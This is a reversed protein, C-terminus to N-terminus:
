EGLPRGQVESRTFAPACRDGAFLPATRMRPPRPAPRARSDGAPERAEGGASRMWGGPLRQRVGTCASLCARNRIQLYCKKRPITTLFSRDLVRTWGRDLRHHSPAVSAGKTLASKPFLSAHGPMKLRRLRSTRPGGLRSGMGPGSALPM